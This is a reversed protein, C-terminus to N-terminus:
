HISKARFNSNKLVMRHLGNPTVIFRQHIMGYLEKVNSKNYNSLDDSNIIIDYAEQANQIDHGLGTLNFRDLMFEDDVECLFENGKLKCFNRTWGSEATSESSSDNSFDRQM